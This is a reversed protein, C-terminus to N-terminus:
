GYLAEQAPPVAGADLAVPFAFGYRYISHSLEVAGPSVDVLQGSVPARLVAGEAVMRVSRRRWNRGDGRFWGPILDLKYQARSDLLASVESPPPAYRALNTVYPGALRAETIEAGQWHEWRFAGHGISRLGGLGHDALLNLGAELRVRWADDAARAAFWLGCDPRYTVRGIQYVQSANTIRDLAVRPVPEIKWCLQHALSRATSKSIAGCDRQLAWVQGDEILTCDSAGLPLHGLMHKWLGESVWRVKQRAQQASDPLPARVLPRPYLRVSGIYPFTSSLQLPPTPGHFAALLEAPEFGLEAWASVLASFLTDSPVTMASGERAFGQIGLHLAGAPMLRYILTEMM